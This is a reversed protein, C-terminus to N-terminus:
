RARQQQQRMKQEWALNRALGVLEPFKKFIPDHDYMDLVSKHTIAELECIRDFHQMFWPDNIVKIPRRKQPGAQQNQKKPDPKQPGAQKKPDPKINPKPEEKKPQPGVNVKQQTTSTFGTFQTKKTETKTEVKSKTQTTTQNTKTESQKGFTTTVTAKLRYPKASYSTTFSYSVIPKQQEEKKVEQKKEEKKTEKVASQKIEVKPQELIITNQYDPKQEEKVQPKVSFEEKEVPKVEQVVQMPKEVPKIQSVFEKKVQQAVVPQEQVKEVKVPKVEQQSVGKKTSVSKLQEVKDVPKTEKKVLQVIQAEQKPVIVQKPEEKKFQSIVPKQEKVEVKFTSSEKKVPAVEQKPQSVKVVPKKKEEIVSQTKTAIFKPQEVQKTVTQVAPNSLIPTITPQTFQVPKTVNIGQVKLKESPLMFEKPQIIPTVFVPKVEQKPQEIIISKQNLQPQEKKISKDSVLQTELIQVVPAKKEEFSFTHFQPVVDKQHIGFENLTNSELDSFEYLFDVHNHNPITNVLFQSLSQLPNTIQHNQIGENNYCLTLGSYIKGETDVYALIPIVEFRVRYFNSPSTTM